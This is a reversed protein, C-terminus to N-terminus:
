NESLRLSEIPLEDLSLIRLDRVMADITLQGSDYLEFRAPGLVRRQFTTSQDAFWDTYTISAPVQGDMSARTSAGFERADLGLEEFSKTVPSLFGRCGAHFPPGERDSANLSLVNGDVSACILCTRDDLTEVIEMGKIVASNRRYTEAASGNAVRQIESRAILVARQMGIHDVIQLLRRAAEDMGEGLAISTTLARRMRIEMEGFNDHMRDAWIRGGLPTEIMRRIRDPNPTTLTLEIKEPVLRRLLNNQVEIERESITFFGDAARQRMETEAIRLAETIRAELFRLRAQHMNSLDGAVNGKLAEKALQAQISDRAARLPEVLERALGNEAWLLAHRHRLIADLIRDNLGDGLGRRGPPPVSTDFEVILSSERINTRLVGLHAQAHDGDVHRKVQRWGEPRQVQVSLANEPDLRYPM